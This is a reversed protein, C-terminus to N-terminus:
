ISNRLYITFSIRGIIYWFIFGCVSLPIKKQFEGKIFSLSFLILLAMLSLVSGTIVIINM